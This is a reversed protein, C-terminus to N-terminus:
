LLNNPSFRRDAPLWEVWDAADDVYTTFRLDAEKTAAGISAGIGRKDYRLSAIGRDALADALMRASAAVSSGFAAAAAFVMPRIM